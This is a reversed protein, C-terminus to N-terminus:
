CGPCPAIWRASRPTSPPSSRPSRPAGAPQDTLDAIQYDGTQDGNAGAAQKAVASLAGIEATLDVVTGPSRRRAPRGPRPDREARPGAQAASQSRVPTPSRAPPASPVATRRQGSRVRAVAGFHLLSDDLLDIPGCRFTSRTLVSADLPNRSRTPYHDERVNKGGRRGPRLITTLTTAASRLREPLLRHVALHHTGGRHRLQRGRRLRRRGHRRDVTVVVARQGNRVAASPRRHKPKNTRRHLCRPLSRTTTPSDAGRPARSSKGASRRPEVEIARNRKHRQAVPEVTSILRPGEHSGAVVQCRGRPAVTTGSGVWHRKRTGSGPSQHAM